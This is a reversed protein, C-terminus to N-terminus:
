LRIKASKRLLRRREQREPLAVAALKVNSGYCSSAYHETEPGKDASKQATIPQTKKWWVSSTHTITPRTVMLSCEETVIDGIYTKSIDGGHRSTRRSKPGHNFGFILEM